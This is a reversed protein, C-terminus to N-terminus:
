GSQSTAIAENPRPERVASSSGRTSRSAHRATSRPVAATIARAGRAAISQLRASSSTSGDTMSPPRGPRILARARPPSPITGSTGLVVAIQPPARDARPLELLAEFLGVPGIMPRELLLEVHEGPPEAASQQEVAM